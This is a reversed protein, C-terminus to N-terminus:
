ADTKLVFVMSDQYSSPTKVQCPAINELRGVIQSNVSCPKNNQFFEIKIAGDKVHINTSCTLIQWVMGAFNMSQLTCKFVKEFPKKHDFSVKFQEIIEKTDKKVLKFDGGAMLADTATIRVTVPGENPKVFCFRNSKKDMAAGFVYKNLNNLFRNKKVSCYNWRM